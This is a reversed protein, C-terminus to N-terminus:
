HFHLFLPLGLHKFYLHPFEVEGGRRKERKGGSGDRKGGREWGM